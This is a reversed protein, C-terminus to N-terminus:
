GQLSQTYPSQVNDAPALQYAQLHQKASQIQAFVQDLNVQKQNLGAMAQELQNELIQWNAFNKSQTVDKPLPAAQSLTKITTQIEAM